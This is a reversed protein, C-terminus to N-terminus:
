GSLEGAIARTVNAAFAGTSLLAGSEVLYLYKPSTGALAATDEITLGALERLERLANGPRPASGEALTTGEIVLTTTM